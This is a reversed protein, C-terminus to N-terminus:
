QMRKHWVSPEQSQHFVSYIFIEAEVMEYYITFPFKKIPAKRVEEFDVPFLNPNEAILDFIEDLSEFFSDGLGPRRSEYYQYADSVEERALVHFALTFNAM